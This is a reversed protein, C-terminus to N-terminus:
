TQTPKYGTVKMFVKEALQFNTRDPTRLFHAKLEESYKGAAAIIEVAAEAFADDDTDALFADVKAVYDKRSVMLSKRRELDAARDKAARPNQRPPIEGDLHSVVWGAPNEVEGRAKEILLARNAARVEDLSCRATLRALNRGTVGLSKLFEGVAAVAAGKSNQRKSNKNSIPQRRHCPDIGSKVPTSTDVKVPTGRDSNTPTSRDLNIPTHTDSKVPTAETLVAGDPPEVPVLLQYETVTRTGEPTSGGEELIRVCKIVQTLEEIARHVTSVSMKCRDCLAKQGIRVKFQQRPDALRALVLYVRLTSASTIRHAVEDIFRNFVQTFGGPPTQGAPAAQFKPVVYHPEDSQTVFKHSSSPM